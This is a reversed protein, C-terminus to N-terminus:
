EQTAAAKPPKVKEARKIATKALMKAAIAETRTLVVRHNQDERADFIPMTPWSGGMGGSGNASATTTTCLLVTFIVLLRM